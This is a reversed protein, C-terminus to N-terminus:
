PTWDDAPTVGGCFEALLTAAHDLDDLHVVEVATHMYRNPIGVLGAAVGPGASRSPTPTRGRRGRAAGCRYRSATSSDRHSGAQRVGAPQHEARPVAGARGGAPHRGQTKKDSGPTDTAHCVDVAIGVQPDVAYTATIAGRLGVEEAVTSVATVAARLERGALRRVAELVM